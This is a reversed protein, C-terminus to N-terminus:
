LYLLNILHLSGLYVFGAKFLYDLLVYNSKSVDSM